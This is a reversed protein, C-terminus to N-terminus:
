YTRYVRDQIKGIEIRMNENNRYPGNILHELYGIIDSLGAGCKHRSRVVSKIAQLNPKM